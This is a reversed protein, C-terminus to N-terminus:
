GGENESRKKKKKLGNECFERANRVRESRSQRLNKLRVGCKLVCAEIAGGIRTVV